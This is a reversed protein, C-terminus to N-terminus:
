EAAKEVLLKIGSINKLLNNPIHFRKQLYEPENYSLWVKGNSDKWALARLPLELALLPSAIMLPTGAEPSGFILMQMPEMKLGAKAADSSFDIRAFIKLGKQRAENELRNISEPVSHKSLVSAIGEDAAYIKLTFLTLVLVFFWLKMTGVKM